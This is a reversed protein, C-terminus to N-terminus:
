IRWEEHMEHMLGLNKPKKFYKPTKWFQHLKQLIKPNPKAKILKLVDHM